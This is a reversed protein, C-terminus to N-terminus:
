SELEYGQMYRIKDNTTPSIFPETEPGQPLEMGVKNAFDSLTINEQIGAKQLFQLFMLVYLRAPGQILLTCKFTRKGGKQHALFITGMSRYKLMEDSAAHGEHQMHYIPLGAIIADPQYTTPALQLALFEAAMGFVAWYRNTNDGIIKKMQEVKSM